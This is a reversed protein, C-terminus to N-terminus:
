LIGREKLQDLHSRKILRVDSGISNTQIWGDGTYTSVYHRGCRPVDRAVHEKVTQKGPWLWFLKAIGEYTLRLVKGAEEINEAGIKVNLWKDEIDFGMPRGIFCAKYEIM